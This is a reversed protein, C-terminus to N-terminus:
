VDSVLIVKKGARMQFYAHQTRLFFSASREALKKSAPDSGSLQDVRTCDHSLREVVLSPGCREPEPADPTRNSPSPLVTRVGRVPVIM